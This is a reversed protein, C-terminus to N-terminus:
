VANILAQLSNDLVQFGVTAMLLVQSGTPTAFIAPGQIRPNPCTQRWAMGPDHILTKICGNKLYAFDM